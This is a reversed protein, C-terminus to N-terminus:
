KKKKRKIKGTMKRTKSTMKNMFTEPGESALEKLLKGRRGLSGSTTEVKKCGKIANECKIICAEADAIVAKDEDIKAIAIKKKCEKICTKAEDMILQIEAKMSGSLDEMSTGCSTLSKCCDALVKDGKAEMEGAFVVSTSAMLVVALLSAFVISTLKM